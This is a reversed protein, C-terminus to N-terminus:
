RRDVPCHDSRPGEVESRQGRSHLGSGAGLRDSGRVEHDVQLRVGVHARSGSDGATTLARLNVGGHARRRLSVDSPDPSFNVFPLVAIRPVGEPPPPTVNSEWPLVVRYLEVPFRVNKLERPPLKEFVNSIKNRVQDFVQQSICVGGPDAQPEVRAAINVADGFIDPGEQEVDGLHIGIRLQLPRAGVLQNRERVSRQIDLACLTAKLASEFEILAGDGTSKVFRGQHLDILRRILNEQEKRLALAAAEDIQTDATYGVMDTFM